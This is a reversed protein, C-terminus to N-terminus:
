IQNANNKTEVSKEIKKIKKVFCHRAKMTFQALSSPLGNEDLIEINLQLFWKGSPPATGHKTVSFLKM